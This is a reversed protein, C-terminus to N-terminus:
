VEEVDIEDDEHPRFKRCANRVAGIRDYGLVYGVHRGNLYVKWEGM